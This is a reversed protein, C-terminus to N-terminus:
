GAIDITDRLNVQKDWIGDAVIIVCNEMSVSNM